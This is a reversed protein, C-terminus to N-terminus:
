EEVVHIGNEDIFLIGAEILAKITREDAREITIIEKGM